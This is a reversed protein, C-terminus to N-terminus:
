QGLPLVLFPYEIGCLTFSIAYPPKARQVFKISNTIGSLTVIIPFQANEPHSFRVLITSGFLILM